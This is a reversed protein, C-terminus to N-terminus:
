GVFSSLLDEIETNSISESPCEGKAQIGLEDLTKDRFLEVNNIKPKNYLYEYNLTGGGTNIGVEGVIENVKEIEGSLENVPEIEGMLTDDTNLEGILENTSEMEGILTHENNLEGILKDTIAIQGVLETKNEIM